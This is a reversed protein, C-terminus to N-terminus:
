KKAGLDGPTTLSGYILQLINEPGSKLLYRRFARTEALLSRLRAETEALGSKVIGDGRAFCLSEPGDHQFNILGKAQLFNLAAMISSEMQGTAVALAPLEIEGSQRAVAFKIMGLLQQLFEKDQELERVAYALVLKKPRSLALMEQLTRLSPPLSFLVLCECNEM